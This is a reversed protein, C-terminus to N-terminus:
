PLLPDKLGSLLALFRVRMRMSVLPIRLRSLGLPFARDMKEQMNDVKESLKRLMNTMNIKCQQGLLELVTAMDSEPKAM